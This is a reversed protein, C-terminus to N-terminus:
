QLHAWIVCRSVQSVLRQVEGQKYREQLREYKPGKVPRSVMEYTRTGAMSKEEGELLYHKDGSRTVTDMVEEWALCLSFESKEMRHGFNLAQRVKKYMDESCQDTQGLKAKTKKPVLHLYDELYPWTASDKFYPPEKETLICWTLFLIIPGKHRNLTKSPMEFMFKINAESKKTAQDLQQESLDELWELCEKVYSAHEKKCEDAQERGWSLRSAEGRRSKCFEEEYHFAKRVGTLTVNIRALEKALAEVWPAPPFAFFPWDVEAGEPIDSM